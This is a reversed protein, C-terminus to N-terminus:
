NKSAENLAQYFENTTDKGLISNYHTTDALSVLNRSGTLVELSTEVLEKRETYGTVYSSIIKHAIKNKLVENGTSFVEEYSKFPLEQAVEIKGELEVKYLREFRLVDESAWNIKSLLDSSHNFLKLALKFSFAKLVRVVRNDHCVPCTIYVGLSNICWGENECRYCNPNLNM